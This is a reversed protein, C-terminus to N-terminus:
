FKHCRGGCICKVLMTPVVPLCTFVFSCCNILQTDSPEFWSKFLQRSKPAVWSKLKFNGLLTRLLSEAKAIDLQSGLSTNETIYSWTNLKRKEGLAKCKCGSLAHPQQEPEVGQSYREQNRGLYGLKRRTSLGLIQWARRRAWNRPYTQVPLESVVLFQTM